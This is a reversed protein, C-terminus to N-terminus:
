GSSTPGLSICLLKLRTSTSFLFIQFPQVAQSNDYKLRALASSIASTRTARLRACKGCPPFAAWPPRPHRGPYLDKEDDVFDLDREDIQEARPPGGGLLAVVAIHVVVVVLSLPHSTRYGKESRARSRFWEVGKCPKIRRSPPLSSPAPKPPSPRFQYSSLCDYFKLRISKMGNQLV